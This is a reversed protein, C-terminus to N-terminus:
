KSDTPKETVPKDRELRQVITIERPNPSIINNSWDRLNRLRVTFHEGYQSRINRTYISAERDKCTVRIVVPDNTVNTVIKNTDIVTYNELNECDSKLVPENFQITMRNYDVFEQFSVRPPTTDKGIKAQLLLDKELNATRFTAVNERLDFQESTLLEDQPAILHATYAANEMGSQRYMYLNYQDNRLVSEPLEYSIEYSMSEKPELNIKRGVITYGEEEYIDYLSPDIELLKAERPIMIRTFGRYVHSLPANYDGLHRLSVSTTAVIRKQNTADSIREIQVTHDFTKELYRDSKMGGLNAMVIAFIDQQPDPKPFINTWGEQSFFSQLSEDRMWVTIEKHNLLATIHRSIEPWRGPDNLLRKVFVPMLEGLISKRTTIDEINHRDINNQEHEITHFLENAPLEQGKYPLTGILQLLDEVVTFNVLIVGDIKKEPYEMEYFRLLDESSTPLDPYWNADHFNYGQYNPGELMEGMPYPAEDIIDDKYKSLSYVDNITIGTPIGGRFGLEAFATIFGGTPRLEANNQLLVLYTRDGRFVGTIEAVKPLVVRLHGLSSIGYVIVALLLSLLLALVGLLIRKPTLRPFSRKM